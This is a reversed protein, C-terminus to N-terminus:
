VGYREGGLYGITLPVSVLGVIVSITRHVIATVTGRVVTRSRKADAEGRATQTWRQLLRFVM